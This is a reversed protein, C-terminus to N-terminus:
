LSLDRFYITCPLNFGSWIPNLLSSNDVRYHVEPQMFPPSNEEGARRRDDEAIIKLHTM